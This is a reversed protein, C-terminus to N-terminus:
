TAADTVLFNAYAIAVPREPDDQWAEARVNAVRRGHRTVIGRAFTDCPKARRLYEITINITKPLVTQEADWLVKFISTSELLAGMTGGHLAPLAPNGILMKSFELKGILDGDVISASIGMFSTYPVAKMLLGCDGSEKIRALMDSISMESM